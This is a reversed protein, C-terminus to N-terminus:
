DWWRWWLWLLFDCTILALRCHMCCRTRHNWLRCSDHWQSALPLVGINALLFELHLPLAPLHQGISQIVDRCDVPCGWHVQLHRSKNQSSSCPFCKLSMKVVKTSTMDKGCHGVVQFNNAQAPQQNRVTTDWSSHPISILRCLAQFHSSHHLTVVGTCCIINIPMYGQHVTKVLPLEHVMRLPDQITTMGSSRAVYVM